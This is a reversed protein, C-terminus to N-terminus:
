GERERGPHHRDEGQSRAHFKVIHGDRVPVFKGQHDHFGILSYKTGFRLRVTMDAAGNVCPLTAQLRYRYHVNLRAKTRLTVTNTAPNYDASKVPDRHGNRLIVVYNAPDAARAPDVAGFFPLILLTRQQHVGIRGIRGTGPCSAPAPAPPTYTYSVAVTSSATTTTNTFLNGDPASASGSGTATM